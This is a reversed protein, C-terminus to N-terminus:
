EKILDTNHPCPSFAPSIPMCSPSLALNDLLLQCINDVEFVQDSKEVELM